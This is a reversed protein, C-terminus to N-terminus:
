LHSKIIELASFIRSKVTGVPCQLIKSIEEYKFGYYHKLVFAVRKKYPVSSIVKLIEKFEISDVISDENGNSNNVMVEAELLIRKHKRLYDYYLNSAITILWTSFKVKPEFRSLNDLAKLLCDQTLDEALHENLTLKILYGKVISYNNSILLELAEKNGQKSLNILKKEDM